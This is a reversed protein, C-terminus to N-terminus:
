NPLDVKFAFTGGEMDSMFVRGDLYKVGWAGQFVADEDQAPVTDYHGIERPITPDRLDVVRLGDIYYSVYAINNVIDINHISTGRRTQYHGIVKPKTLDSVDLITMGQDFGEDNHAYYLKGGVEFAAGSHSLTGEWKISSLVTVTRPDTADLIFLGSRLSQLFVITRGNRQIVHTDHFGDLIHTVEPRIFRGIEKPAAPNSVDIIRLDTTEFSQNVAYVTKGDPGLELTHVNTFTELSNTGADVMFQGVRVPQAPNRVDFILVGRSYTAVYAYGDRAM